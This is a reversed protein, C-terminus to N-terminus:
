WPSRSVLHFATSEPLVDFVFVCYATFGPQIDDYVGQRNHQQQAASQPQLEAMDFLRGASDQARFALHTVSSSELGANRVDMFLVLFTGKAETPKGGYDQLYPTRYGGVITGEFPAEYPYSRFRMVEGVPLLPPTPTPLPTATPGPTPVEAVIEVAPLYVGYLPPWGDASAVGCGVLVLALLALRM